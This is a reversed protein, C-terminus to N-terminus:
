AQAKPALTALKLGPLGVFNVQDLINRTPRALHTASVTHM